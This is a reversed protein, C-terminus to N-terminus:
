RTEQTQQMGSSSKKIGVLSFVIDYKLFFISMNVETLYPFSRCFIGLEERKQLQNQEVLEDLFEEYDYRRHHCKEQFTLFANIIQGSSINPIAQHRKRPKYKFVRRVDPNEDLPGLHAEDYTSVSLFKALLPGLDHITCLNFVQEFIQMYFTVGKIRQILNALTKLNRQDIRLERFSTVGYHAFLEQEVRELSVFEQRLHIALIIECLKTDVSDEFDSMPRTGSQAVSNGIPIHKRTDSRDNTGYEKKTTSQPIFASLAISQSPGQVTKWPSARKETAAQRQENGDLEPAQNKSILVISNM